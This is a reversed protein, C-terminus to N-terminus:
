IRGMHEHVARAGRWPRHGGPGLSITLPLLEAGDEVVLDVDDPFLQTGLNALEQVALPEEPRGDVDNAELDSLSRDAGDNQPNTDDGLRERALVGADRRVAAQTKDLLEADVVDLHFEPTGDIGPRGAWAEQFVNGIQM